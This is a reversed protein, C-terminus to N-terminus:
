DLDVRDLVIKEDVIYYKVLNLDCWQKPVVPHSGINYNRTAIEKARDKDVLTFDNAIIYAEILEYDGYAYEKCVYDVYKSIQNVTDNDADKAKLEVVLYKLIVKSNKITKYKYAFVDIRDMYDIPKFPSACLQHTVYDWKGFITSKGANLIDTVIAEVAMENRLFVGTSDVCGPILDCPNIQHESKILPLIKKHTAKDYPMIDTSGINRLYIFEKITENELDDVKIFSSKWFTRIRKLNQPKYSLLDDMDVGNLYFEPYPEFLCIWHNETNEGYLMQKKTSSDYPYSRLLKSASYYNNYKCDPGVKVLVGVGYIKRNSFFYINDGENMSCYDALTGEFPNKNVACKVVTSYVGDLVCKKIVDMGEEKSISFIFGAM